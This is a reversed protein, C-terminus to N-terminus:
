ITVSTKGAINRPSAPPTAESSTSPGVSPATRSADACAM